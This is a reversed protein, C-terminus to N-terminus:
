IKNNTVRVGENEVNVLRFIDSVIKSDDTKYEVKIKRGINKEYQFREM